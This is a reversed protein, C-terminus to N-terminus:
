LSDIFKKISEKAEGTKKQIKGIFEDEKGEEYVLDNDTLVGWKQKLKGKTENWNGKSKDSFASM